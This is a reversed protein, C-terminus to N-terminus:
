CRLGPTRVPADWLEILDPAARVLTISCGAMDLSTVYSGVLARAVVVGLADLVAAAEAFMLSLELAHTSGLGNVIAIVRDGRALDLAQAIPQVLMEALERAPAFPRRDIGREGHIGVGFEIEGQGLM